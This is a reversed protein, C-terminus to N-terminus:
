KKKKFIDNFTNIKRTYDKIIKTSFVGKHNDYINNLNQRKQLFDQFLKKKM